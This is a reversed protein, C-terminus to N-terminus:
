HDAPITGKLLKNWLTPESLTRMRMIHICLTALYLYQKTRHQLPPASSCKLYVKILAVVEGSVNEDYNNNIENQIIQIMYLFVVYTVM